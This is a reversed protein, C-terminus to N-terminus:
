LVLKGSYYDLVKARLIYDYKAIILNINARDVNNKAILYDVQTSAGANFKVEATRFSESFDSVQQVLKQYREYAATLNFYAQEISQKLQIRTTEEIYEANKLDIRALRLQYKSRFANLIPINVGLSVSTSYNNNFQNFYQIKESSYSRQQTVVPIKNGGLTVFDGSPM